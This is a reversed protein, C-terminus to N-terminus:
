WELLDTETWPSKPDRPVRFTKIEAPGFDAAITREVLPLEITAAAGGAATTRVCSSRM